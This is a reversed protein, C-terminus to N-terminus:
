ENVIVTNTKLEGALATLNLTPLVIANYNAQLSLTSIFARLYPYIIATSNTFFYEPVNEFTLANSFKFIADCNVNIIQRETNEVIASFKMNMKYIGSDPDYEGSPKFDVSLNEEDGLVGLNILVETFKYDVLSFKALETKKDSM